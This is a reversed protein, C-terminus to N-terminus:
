LDNLLEVKYVQGMDQFLKIAEDISVEMRTFAPSERVIKRMEKAIDRVDDKTVPRAIDIDYYFGNEIVPGVGLKAEPFLRKVAAAMIHAASHRRVEIPYEM